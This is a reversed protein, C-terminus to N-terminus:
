LQMKTVVSVTASVSVTATVAVVFRSIEQIRKQITKSFFSDCDKVVLCISMDDDNDSDDSESIM